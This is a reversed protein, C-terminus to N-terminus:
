RVVLPSTSTRTRRGLVQAARGRRAAEPLARGARHDGGRARRHTGRAGGRGAGRDHGRRRRRRQRGRRRRAGRPRHAGGPRSWGARRARRGTRRLPVRRGRAAGGPLARPEGAADLLPRRRALLHRRAPRAARPRPRTRAARRAGALSTSATGASCTSCASSPRRRRPATRSSPTGAPSGSSTTATHTAGRPSSKSARAASASRPRIPTPRACGASRPRTRARGPAPAPTWSACGCAPGLSGGPSRARRRQGRRGRDVDPRPGTVREEVGAFVGLPVEVFPPRRVGPTVEDPAVGEERFLRDILARCTKAGCAGMEARTRAKLENVDRVGARILVRLEAATVRECRCVIADDDLPPPAAIPVPMRARGRVGAVRDALVAPVRVQVLLTGDAGGSAGPRGGDVRARPVGRVRAVEVEALEAGDTAVAVVADGVALADVAFEFPVTVLPTTPTRARTSWPSRWGRASASAAPAASAPTATRASTRRSRASTTRTSTSSGKRARRRARTAPSRRPATSCRTSARPRGASAGDVVAGPKPRLLEGTRRWDDPVREETAGLARAIERGASAARRLDRRVGRRDGRLRRRRARRRRRRAGSRRARRGPRARGGGAGHRVRVHARQRRRTPLARRRARGDRGRGTRRRLRAGGYHRPSSPCAGAARAQRPPRRLRRVRRRGRRARGGRRRGALAHYATILGVNGGGVVFLREAVRVQDRNLLTQFRVPASCAPSRTAASPWRGSARAPPSSCCRRGCWRTAAGSAGSASGATASCPWRPPRPGSRPPARCRTAERASASASTSAAPARTCPTSPASSATRRCSSSAAWGTRTTSWSCRSGTTASSPPRPSGRRSRRRRGAGPGRPARRRTARPGPRRCARRSPCSQCATSRPAGGARRHRGDHLGQGPTRRGAGPVPRVPRQRLLAGAARRGQPPPRLRPRRAVPPRRRDIEGELATCPAGDWRFPVATRPVVRLIPHHELRSTAM